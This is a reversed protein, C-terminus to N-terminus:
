VPPTCAIVANETAIKAAEEAAAQIERQEIVLREIQAGSILFPNNGKNFLDIVSVEGSAGGPADARGGGSGQPIDGGMFIPPSPGRNPTPFPNRPPMPEDPVKEGENRKIVM